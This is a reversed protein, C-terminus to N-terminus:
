ARSYDPSEPNKDSILVVIIIICVVAVSICSIVIGVIGGPSLGSPPPAFETAQSEEVSTVNYGPILSGDAAAAAIHALITSTNVSQLQEDNLSVEFEVVTSGAWINKFFFAEPTLVSFQALVNSIVAEIITNLQALNLALLDDAVTVKIASIAKTICVGYSALGQALLGAGVPFNLGLLSKVYLGIALHDAATLDCYNPSASLACAKAKDVVFAALEDCSMASIDASNIASQLCTGQFGNWAQGGASLAISLTTALACQAEAYGLAFGNAGCAKKPELCERYFICSGPACTPADPIQCDVNPCTGQIAQCQQLVTQQYIQQAGGPFSLTGVCKLYNVICDCSAAVNGANSLLCGHYTAACNVIGQALESGTGCNSIPCSNTLNTIACAIYASDRLTTDCPQACLSYNGICNCIAAQFAVPQAALKTAELTCNAYDTLPGTPCSSCAGSCSQILFYLFSIAIL